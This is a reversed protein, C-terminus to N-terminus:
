QSRSEDSAVTQHFGGDNQGGGVSLMVYLNEHHKKLAVCERYVGTDEPRSPVLSDNRNDAFAVLLHTCLTGNIDQPQLQTGPGIAYYCVRKYTASISASLCLVSVILLLLKM